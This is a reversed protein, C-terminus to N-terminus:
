PAKNCKAEDPQLLLTPLVDGLREPAMCNVCTVALDTAFHHQSMSLLPFATNIPVLAEGHQNPLTRVACIICMIKM